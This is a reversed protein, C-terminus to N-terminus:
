KLLRWFHRRNRAHREDLHNRLLKYRQGPTHAGFSGAITARAVFGELAMNIVQVYDPRQFKAHPRRGRGRHDSQRCGPLLAIAQKIDPKQIYHTDPKQLQQWADVSSM